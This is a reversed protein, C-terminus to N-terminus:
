YTPSNYLSNFVWQMCGLKFKFSRDINDDEAITDGLNNLGLLNIDFLAALLLDFDILLVEIFFLKAM